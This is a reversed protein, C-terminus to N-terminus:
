GEGSSDQDNYIAKRIWIKNIPTKLIRSIDQALTIRPASQNKDLRYIHRATVKVRGLANVEDALQQPSLEAKTRLHCLRSKLIDRISPDKM